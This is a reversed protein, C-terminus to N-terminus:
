EVIKYYVKATLVYVIAYIIAFILITIITCILFLNVNRLSFLALLRTIMNFAGAVHIAAVIIPLFFVKLVQSRITGRVEDKSMGVKQMIEFRVKDDYGESIQKYYIILATAMFFLSGIFLGLFLFGGYVAYFDRENGQRNDIYISCKNDPNKKIADSITRSLTTAIASKEDDACNLDFMITSSYTSAEKGFASQQAINIADAEKQNVVIFFHKIMLASYSGDIQLSKIHEKITYTKDFLTFSDGLKGYAEFVLAENNSLEVNQGSIRAYEDQTLFELMAVNTTTYANSLSATDFTDGNKKSAFGLSTYYNINEAKDSLTDNIVRLAVKQEENTVKTMHLICEEPYRLDLSDEVGMYMCVTTSVTVLVMTSLICINALGVANQKMRYIMGSVSTFHKTQYYYKKNKRLLKLIAISGATFLCYTGIIVLIVAVFFLFVAALPSKVTIALYYGAVLCIVGLITLFWKTKPEKEGVNRGNLLEIPKALHIKALNFLLTLFIICGFLIVTAMIGTTSIYFGLPVSFSIIKCLLLTMLKDLLIGFFLGFVLGIAGIYITEYFLVKAIHRKEMGLINYLGLEKTRRKMLFSNTYFLFIVAFIGVVICGLALILSLSNNGPMKKLGDNLSMACMIYFMAITGVCTLIYPLYFKGNKKINLIALKSYFMKNM